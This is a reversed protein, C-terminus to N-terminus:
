FLFLCINGKGLVFVNTDSKRYTIVESVGRSVLSHLPNVEIVQKFHAKYFWM